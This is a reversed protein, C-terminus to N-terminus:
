YAIIIVIWNLDKCAQSGVLEMIDLYIHSRISENESDYFFPSKAPMAALTFFFSAHAAAELVVLVYYAKIMWSVKSLKRLYRVINHLAFATIVTFAM